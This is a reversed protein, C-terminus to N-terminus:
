ENVIELFFIMGSRFFYTFSNRVEEPQSRPTLGVLCAWRAACSCLNTPRAPSCTFYCGSMHLGLCFGPDFGRYMPIRFNWVHLTRSYFCAPKGLMPISARPYYLSGGGHVCRNGLFMGFPASSRCSIIYKGSGVDFNEPKDARESAM